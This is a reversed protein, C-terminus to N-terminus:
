RVGPRPRTFADFNSFKVKICHGISPNSLCERGFVVGLNRANMLNIHSQLKVSDFTTLSSFIALWTLSLVYRHLHFMLLKLTAYHEKPLQRVLQILHAVKESIDKMAPYPFLTLCPSPMREM